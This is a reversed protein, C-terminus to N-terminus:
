ESADPKVASQSYRKKAKEFWDDEGDPEQAVKDIKDLEDDIDLRIIDSPRVTAEDKGRLRNHITAVILRTHVWKSQIERHAQATQHKFRILYLNWEYFSLNWFEDIGIGM